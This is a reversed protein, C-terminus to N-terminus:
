WPPNTNPQPKSSEPQVTHIVLVPGECNRAVQGAIGGLPRRGIGSRGHGAMVLFSSPVSRAYDIIAVAPHGQLVHEEVGAVGQRRLEQSIPRLYGGAQEAV